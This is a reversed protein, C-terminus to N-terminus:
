FEGAYRELHSLTPRGDGPSGTLVVDKGDKVANLVANDLSNAIHISSLLDAGSTQTLV